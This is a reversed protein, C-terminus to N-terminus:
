SGEEAEVGVEGAGGEFGGELDGVRDAPGEVVFGEVEDVCGRVVDEGVVEVGLVAGYGILPDEVLMRAGARRISEADIFLTEDPLRNVALPFHDPNRWLPLHHSLYAIRRPINSTRTKHPLLKPNSSRSLFILVLNLAPLEPTANKPNINPNPSRPLKLKLELSPNLDIVPCSLHM